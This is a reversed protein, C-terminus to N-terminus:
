EGERITLNGLKINNRQLANELTQESIGLSELKKRDPVILLEPYSLGSVDVMAVQPIQEIRKAIVQGAFRSLEMFKPSVPFLERSWAGVGDDDEDSLSMKIFFAPIDRASDRRLSSMARDIMDNTAIFLYIMDSGPDFQMFITGTGNRAETTIDRLHSVQMLQNKLPKVITADLERASANDDVVRVTIQPIQIDPMLSVPLMGISVFGLVLVAILTMTVAVPREILRKIM